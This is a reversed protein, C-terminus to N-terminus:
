FGGEFIAQISAAVVASVGGATCRVVVEFRCGVDDKSKISILSGYNAALTHLIGAALVLIGAGPSDPSHHVVDLGLRSALRVINAANYRHATACHVISEGDMAGLGEGIQLWRKKFEALHTGTAPTLTKIMLVPIKLNLQNFSGGCMFSMALMPSEHAGVVNRIKVRIEMEAKSTVTPLPLQTLELIYSPDTSSSGNQLDLVTFRTLETNASKAAGNIITLRYSFIAGNRVVRYTIKILANEYFIGADYHCMRLYGPYWNPSVTYESKHELFPDETEEAGETIPLAVSSASKGNRMKALADLNSRPKDAGNSNTGSRKALLHVSGARTLLHNSKTEFPPFPALAVAVLDKGPAILLQLYEYARTQIELDMSQTEAEFLDIIDPVFDADPQRASVKFFATLLMARNTLSVTFYADYLKLFTLMFNIDTKHGYEGLVFAAVKLLDELSSHAKVLNSLIRCAMPQLGENNVIIQVVREWVEDGTTTSGGTNGMSLMRIMNTVYWEASAAYKEALVEVKVAIDTRLSSDTSPFIDLLHTVISNCNSADCVTYLLELAKRKVSVDKDELFGFIKPLDDSFSQRVSAYYNGELTARDALKILADLSLYRTNTEASDLLSMLASVAGAIADASADLFVTLSVTQFLISSQSNRNPLGRVPQSGKKISHAVVERLNDVTDRDLAALSVSPLTEQSLFYIEITRLLSIILWPAASDYYYYEDPCKQEVVLSRLRFAISPIIAKFYKPEQQAVFQVVPVAAVVVGMDPDDVLSLIRPIRNANTVLVSPFLKLLAHLAAVSKHRVRPTLVPSCCLSYVIDTLELWRPYDDHNKTISHVLEAGDKVLMNLANAVFQAALCNFDESTSQLDKVLRSFVLDLLQEMYRSVSYPPDVEFLTAVALYGLSKESYVNSDVLTLAHSLGFGASDYGLLHIYVLKCIYKKRHYGSLSAQAFKSHINNIELNIRKSEADTDQASRIDVIFQTLGKMLPAM